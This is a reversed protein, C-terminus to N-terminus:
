SALTHKPSIYPVEENVFMSAQQFKPRADFDVRLKADTSTRIKIAQLNPPRHISIDFSIRRSAHQRSMREDRGEVASRRAKTPLHTWWRASLESCARKSRGAVFGPEFPRELM